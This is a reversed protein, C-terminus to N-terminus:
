RSGRRQGIPSASALNRGRWAHKGGGERCEPTGARAMKREGTGRERQAGRERGLLARGDRVVRRHREGELGFSSQTEGCVLAGPNGEVYRGIAFRDNEVQQAVQID